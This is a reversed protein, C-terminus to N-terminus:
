IFPSNVGILFLKIFLPDALFITLSLLNLLLLLLGLTKLLKAFFQIVLLKILVIYTIKVKKNM